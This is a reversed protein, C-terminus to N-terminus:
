KKKKNKESRLLHKRFLAYFVDGKTIVGILVDEDTLVPLQNVRRAIMRSLARMAPTDDRAFIVRPAMLEGATIELLDEMKEEMAEFDSANVFDEVIDTYEPYLPKLLDEKSIIGILRKKEDVVPISNIHKAFIAKWLDKYKTKKTVTVIDKSMVDRVKM